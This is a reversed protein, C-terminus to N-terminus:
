HLLDSSDFFFEVAEECEQCALRAVRLPKGDVTRTGEGARELYGGCSPCWRERLADDIDTYSRIPIPNGASAGPLAHAARRLRNRRWRRSGTAILAAVIALTFLIAIL